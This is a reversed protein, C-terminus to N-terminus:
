QNDQTAQQMSRPMEGIRQWVTITNQGTRAQYYSSKLKMPWEKFDVWDPELVKLGARAKSDLTIHMQFGPQEM